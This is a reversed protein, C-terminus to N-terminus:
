TTPPNPGLEREVSVVNTRSGAGPVFMDGDGSSGGGGVTGIPTHVVACGM